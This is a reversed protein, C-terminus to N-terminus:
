DQFIELLSLCTVVQSPYTSPSKTVLDFLASTNKHYFVTNNSGRHFLCVISDLSDYFITSYFESLSTFIDYLVYNYFIIFFFMFTLLLSVKESTWFNQKDSPHYNQANLSDLDIPNTFSLHNYKLQKQKKVKAKKIFGM